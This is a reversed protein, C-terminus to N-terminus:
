KDKFRKRIYGSVARYVENIDSNGMLQLHRDMTSTDDRRAPGTQVEVPSHTELRKFTEEILPRLMRYDIHHDTCLDTTAVLMANTFNNAFVAALHYALRQRYDVKHVLQGCSSVLTELLVQTEDTNSEVLFPVELDPASYRNISQLPYLVGRLAHRSLIDLPLSGACHCVLGDGPELAESVHIIEDDNVCLIVLDTSPPIILQKTFATELQKALQEGTKENRSIVASVSCGASRLLLGMYTAINGSGIIAIHKIVSIM